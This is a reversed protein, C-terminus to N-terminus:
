LTVLIRLFTDGHTSIPTPMRRTLTATDDPNVTESVTILAEQTAWSRLDSSSQVDIRMDDANLNVQYTITLYRHGDLTMSSTSPMPSSDGTRPNTGFSYEVLNLIGDGDPDGLDDDINNANKWALFGTTIIDDPYGPAGGPLLHAGWNGAQEPDQGVAVLSHGNGDALTSWPLQDNYTFNLITGSTKSFVSLTEGDNSLRGSYEGAINRDNRSGYRAIFAELNRVVVLRKGPNLITNQPFTFNIGESFSVHTLDVPNTATNLFEVFEYDDRDSSTSIEEPSSPESPHYHLESIILNSSTAPVSGVSFFAETIASWQQTSNNYSRARLLGPQTITVPKTIRDGNSVDVEGRLILDFSIDSSAPSSNHIEVAISNLGDAFRSSPVQFDFYTRENPTARSAFTDFAANIPMNSTRLVEVGNAYVAAGDDYKLKINFYSYSSPDPLDVTTRFYTTANRQTGATEPDTDIFGVRTAEDGEAYGLESPGSAWSSDEFASSRWTIGQDSGDDLYKWVHGSSIFDKPTPANGAFQAANSQPNVAGGPLRPDSGDLTYYIATANTGMTIGAGPAVSGGHQSFVPAIIDPYMGAARFRSLMTSTLNPLQSNLLNNQYNEWGSPSHNTRGPRVQTWRAAESVFSLKVEDVRRRLRETLQVSTMAGDNFFHKHIRDAVLMSYDPNGSTRFRLMSNIPGNHTVPHGPPRLFGDADKMFFKFPIGLPVAGVSRFESESNGSTWLLMFDIMNEIDLHTASNAFPAPGNVLSQTEAWYNGSGDFVEGPLFNSGTNNANIAEYDKKSGGLYESAMSANWRERLHYQGWYTGNLYVHVFRGHPAIHGMDIMSDDTFRNSLYAGRDIMDHSGSRLNLSDFEQAPPINYDFGDFVPYRLKKAGYEDRFYLRFSKKSFNTFYGGYHTVGADEQFGSTGDPFIMEVSLAREEETNLTSPNAVVLSFSPISKLSDIMKPGYTASQTISTSMTSQRVVDTAFVYTHTDINTPRYGPRHAMARVVSTKSISIPEKYITGNTESPASGDLTYRIQASETSTTISLAFPEDYFGRDISFQTDEVLGDIRTDNASGPSPTLFYGDQAVDLDREKAALEPSILLDSSGPSANLGQIALINDGNKPTASLPYDFLTIANNENSRNSLARSNWQTNDPANERHIEKGNLYAVFGDEWRMRLTLDNIASADPVVFPIRIYVSANIGRMQDNTNGGEGIFPAYKPSNDYGIGTAATNWQSDQFQPENWNAIPEEPVLWHATAGESILTVPSAEGFGRGYSIDEHQKPYNVFESAISTGDPKILALYSGPSADLKFNTHLETDPDRRDKGSAFVILYGRDNFTASPFRWKVPTEPDDTLYYGELDGAEGSVNWIEIWDSANGDADALSQKNDAVFETIIANSVSEGHLSTLLTALTTFSAVVCLPLYISM